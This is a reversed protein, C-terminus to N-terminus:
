LHLFDQLMVLVFFSLFFFCHFSPAANTHVAFIVQVDPVAFYLQVIRKNTCSLYAAASTLVAVNLRSGTWAITSFWMSSHCKQLNWEDSKGCYLFIM